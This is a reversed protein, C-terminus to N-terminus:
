SRKSRISAAHVVNEILCAVTVPGVGGPVPTLNEVVEAVSAAADGVVKGDIRNIGVDIVTQGPRVMDSTLFGPKGVAVVIIDAERCHRATSAAPTM